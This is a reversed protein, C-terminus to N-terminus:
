TYPEEEPTVELVGHVWPPEEIGDKMSARLFHAALRRYADQLSDAEFLLDVTLRFKM